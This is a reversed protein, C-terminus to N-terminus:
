TRATRAKMSNRPDIHLFLLWIKERERGFIINNDM